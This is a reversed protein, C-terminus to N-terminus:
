AGAAQADLRVPGEDGAALAILLKTFEERHIVNGLRPGGVVQRLWSM